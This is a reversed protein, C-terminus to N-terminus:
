SIFLANSLLSFSAKIFINIINIFCSINQVIHLFFRKGQRCLQKNDNHHKRYSIESGALTKQIDINFLRFFLSCMKLCLKYVFM